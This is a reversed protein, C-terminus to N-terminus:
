GKSPRIYADVVVEVGCVRVEIDCIVGLYKMTVNNALKAKFNSPFIVKMGLYNM